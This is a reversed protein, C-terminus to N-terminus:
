PTFGIYFQSYIYHDSGLKTIPNKTLNLFKLTKKNPVKKQAFNSSKLFPTLVRSIQSLQSLANGHIEWAPPMQGVYIVEMAGGLHELASLFELSIQNFLDTVVEQVIWSYKDYYGRSTGQKKVMHSIDIFFFM